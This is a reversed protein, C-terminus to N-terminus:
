ASEAARIIAVIDAKKTAKGLDIPPVHAEAYAELMKITTTKADLDLVEAPPDAPPDADPAPPDPNTATGSSAPDPTESSPAPAPTEDVDAIAVFTLEGSAVQADYRERAMTGEAPVDMDWIAGGSGKVTVTLTGM